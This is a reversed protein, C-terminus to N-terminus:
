PKKYHQLNKYMLTMISKDLMIKYKYYDHYFSIIGKTIISSIARMIAARERFRTAKEDGIGKSRDEYVKLTSDLGKEVSNISSLDKEQDKQTLLSNDYIKQILRKCSELDYVDIEIQTHEINKDEIRSKVSTAKSLFEEKKTDPSLKTTAIYFDGILLDKKEIILGDKSEGSSTLIHKFSNYFDETKDSQDKVETTVVQAARKCVEFLESAQKKAEKLASSNMVELIDEYKAIDKDQSLYKLEAPAVKLKGGDSVYNNTLAENYKLAVKEANLTIQKIKNILNVFFDKIFNFVKKIANIIAQWIKLAGEKFDEIALKTSQLRTDKNKFSELSITKNSKYGIRKYLHEVAINIASISGEDMGGDPLTTEVANAISDISSATDIAEEVASTIAEVNESSEHFLATQEDYIDEEINVVSEDEFPEDINELSIIKLRSM